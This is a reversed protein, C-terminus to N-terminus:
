EGMRVFRVPDYKRCFPGVNAPSDGVAAPDSFLPDPIVGAPDTQRLLSFFGDNAYILM